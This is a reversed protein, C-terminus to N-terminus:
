AAERAFRMEGWGAREAAERGTLMQGHFPCCWIGEDSLPTTTWELLRACGQLRINSPTGPCKPTAAQWDARTV